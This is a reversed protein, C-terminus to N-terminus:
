QDFVLTFQRGTDHEPKPVMAFLSKGPIALIKKYGKFMSQPIICGALYQEMTVGDALHHTFQDVPRGDPTDYRMTVKM